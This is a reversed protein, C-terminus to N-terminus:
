DSELHPYAQSGAALVLKPQLLLQLIQGLISTIPLVNSNGILMFTESYKFSFGEM